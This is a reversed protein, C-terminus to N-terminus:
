RSFPVLVEFLEFRAPARTIPALKAVFPQYAPDAEIQNTRNEYEALDRFRTTTVLTAGDPAFLQRSLGTDLGQAQNKKVWEELVARVERVKGTAPFVRVRHVFM